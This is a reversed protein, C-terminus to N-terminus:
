FFLVRITCAVSSNLEWTSATIEGDYIDSVASQFLIMRNEPLHGLHHPILNSGVDLNVTRIALAGSLPGMGQIAKTTQLLNREEPKREYAFLPIDRPPGKVTM